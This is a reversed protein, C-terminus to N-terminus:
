EEEEDNSDLKIKVVEDESEFGMKRAWDPQYKQRRRANMFFNSVTTTELSLHQAITHQMERSPRQTERFIAHLTRKQIETFVFRSKKPIVARPKRGADNSSYKSAKAKASSAESMGVTALRQGLPLNLWSFMRRYTDRGAKLEEWPKPNRLLDSLTGQSRDIVKEAFVTQPICRHKLETTIDKALQTTDIYIDDDYPNLMKSTTSTNSSSASTSPGTSSYHVPEITYETFEDVSSKRKQRNRQLYLTRNPVVPADFSIPDNEHEYIIIHTPHDYLMDDGMNEVDIYEEAERLPWPLIDTMVTDMPEEEYQLFDDKDPETKILKAM